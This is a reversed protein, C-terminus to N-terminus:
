RGRPWITFAKAQYETPIAAEQGVYGDDAYTEKAMQAFSLSVDKESGVASTGRRGREYLPLPTDSLEASSQRMM